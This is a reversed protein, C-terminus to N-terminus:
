DHSRRAIQWISRWPDFEAADAVKSEIQRLAKELEKIRDDKVKILRAQASVRGQLAEIMEAETILSAM